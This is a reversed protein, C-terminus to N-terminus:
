DLFAVTVDLGSSISALTIILSIILGFISFGVVAFCDNTKTEPKM